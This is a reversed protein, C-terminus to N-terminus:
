LEVDAAGADGEARFIAQALPDDPYSAVVAMRPGLKPVFARAVAAVGPLDTGVAADIHVTEESLAIEAVALIM